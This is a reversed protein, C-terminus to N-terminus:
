EVLKLNQGLQSALGANIPQINYAALDEWFPNSFSSKDRTKYVNKTLSPELIKYEKASLFQQEMVFFENITEYPIHGDKAKRKISGTALEYVNLLNKPMLDPLPHFSYNELYVDHKVKAELRFIKGLKVSDPLVKDLYYRVIQQDKNSSIHGVEDANKLISTRSDSEEKLTYGDLRDILKQSSLNVMRAPQFYTWMKEKYDNVVASDQFIRYDVLRYKVSGKKLPIYFVVIGDSFYKHKHDFTELSRFYGKLCLYDADPHAHVVVEDLRNASTELFVTDIKTANNIQHALTHYAIHQVRIQMPYASSLKSKNLMELQGDKNSLAILNGKNTYVNVFPIPLKTDMDLFVVQQAFSFQTSVIFLVCSLCSFYFSRHQAMLLCNFKLFRNTNKSLLNM